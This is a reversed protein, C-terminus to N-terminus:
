DGLWEFVMKEGPKATGKIFEFAKPNGNLIMSEYLEVEDLNSARLAELDAAFDWDKPHFIMERFIGLKIPKGGTISTSFFHSFDTGQYWGGGGGSMIVGDISGDDFYRRYLWPLQGYLPVYKPHDALEPPMVGALYLPRGSTKKKCNLFFDAVGEGRIQFLAAIDEETNRFPRGHRAAFKALLEANFGFRPMENNSLPHHSRLNFIFGDFPYEALEAFRAVKHEMAKPVNFEAIGLHYEVPVAPMPVAGVMFGAHRGVGDWAAPCKSISEMDLPTEEPKGECWAWATPLTHGETDYVQHRWDENSLVMSFTSGGDTCVLKVYPASIALGSLTIRHHGKYEDVNLNFDMTYPRFTANDDSVLLKLNDKKLKVPGPRDYLDPNICVIKGVTKQRAEATIADAQERTVEPRAWTAICADPNDLYWPDVLPMGRLREYAEMYKPDRPKEFRFAADDYLSEWGWVELGYKHGLRITETCINYHRYTETLREGAKEWHGWHIAGGDGYQGAVKTPYHTRGCINVRLYIKKIGNESFERIVKEYEELPYYPETGKYCFVYDLYDITTSVLLPAKGADRASAMCALGVVAAVIHKLKCKM